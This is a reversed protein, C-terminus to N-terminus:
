IKFTVSGTWFHFQDMLLPHPFMKLCVVLSMYFYFNFRDFRTMSPFRAFRFPSHHPWALWKALTTIQDRQKGTPSKFSSSDQFHNPVLCVILQPHSICDFLTTKFNANSEQSSGAETGFIKYPGDRGEGRGLRGESTFGDDRSCRGSCQMQMQMQNSKFCAVVVVRQQAESYGKIRKRVTKDCTIYITEQIWEGDCRCRSLSDLCTFSIGTMTKTQM